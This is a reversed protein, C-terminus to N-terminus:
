GSELVDIGNLWIWVGYIEIIDGDIVLVVGCLDFGIMESVFVFLVCVFIFILVVFVFNM